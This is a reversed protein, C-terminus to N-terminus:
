NSWYLLTGVQEQGISYTATILSCDEMASNQNERGIKVTFVLQIKHLLIM